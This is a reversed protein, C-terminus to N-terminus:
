KLLRLRSGGRPAGARSSRHNCSNFRTFPQPSLFWAWAFGSSHSSPFPLETGRHPRLTLTPAILTLLASPDHSGEARKKITHDGQQGLLGFFRSSAGVKRTATLILAGSTRVVKVNM